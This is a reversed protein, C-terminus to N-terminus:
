KATAKLLKKREELKARVEPKALGEWLGELFLYKGDQLFKMISKEDSGAKMLLVDALLVQSSKNECLANLLKVYSDDLPNSQMFSNVLFSKRDEERIGGMIGVIDEVELIGSRAAGGLACLANDRNIVGKESSLNHIITTKDVGLDKFLRFVTTTHEFLERNLVFTTSTSM